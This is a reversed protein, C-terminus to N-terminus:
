IRQLFISYLCFQRSIIAKTTFNHRRTNYLEKRTNKKGLSRGSQFTPFNTDNSFLLALSSRVPFMSWFEERRGKPLSSPAINRPDNLSPPSGQTINTSQDSTLTSGSRNRAGRSRSTARKLHMTAQILPRISSKGYVRTAGSVDESSPNATSEPWFDADGTPRNRRINPYRRSHHVGPTPSSRVHGTSYHNPRNPAVATADDAFGYEDESTLDSDTSDRSPRFRLLAAAPLLASSSSSSNNSDSTSSSQAPPIASSRADSGPVSASDSRDDM